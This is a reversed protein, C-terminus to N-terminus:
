SGGTGARARWSLKHLEMVAALVLAIGVLPLWLSLAVPSTELVAQLPGVYLAGVHLLLAGVASLLLLPNSTPSVRFLSRTESRSNGVQVNEFLVMLLLLANRAEAVAFGADLLWRFTLFGAGGIVAAALLTREVMLRDFIPEGPDRPPRDLVDGEEPEFGLAIDQGGETVLNLWLLQAPLLPLPLGAALSLLVLVIESANTSVLMYVVKRINDYAIRGQRIGGVITAFDDDSLVLEATDRAVDTGSAGMAIGINATQLAPADNVGDGTVAVFHGAAKAAEVIRLKQDPAVRAFVRTRQVAERLGAEDMDALERGTLVEDSDSALGLERAIALATEPHDGTLMSVEIGARRASAIAEQTGPRLPDRMGVFGLFTLGDPTPPDDPDFEGDLRGVALALVRYGDKALDTAARRATETADDAAAIDTDTDANVDDADAATDVTASPWACMDLVREPAGKVFVRTQGTERGTSVTGQGERYYAAAFRREPEFPIQAVSRLGDDARPGDREVKRAFSLLAVDTPDGRWHWEGDHETLTAENCLRAARALRELAPQASTGLTEDSDLEMGPNTAVLDGDPDYGQGTVDYSEGSPLRVRRVTLLNETLTGTKDTAILTCSGLGEVAVMRRVIVGVGAMRRTAVGLAVTMSVPLGEPIAAVMLAVAFLFMEFLGFGRFGVGLVVAAVALAVVALGITRTFQAMRHVLPPDGAQIGVVDGALEGVVTQSGTAVVVGRGRGRTVTTGAFALNERDVVPTSPDGTWLVSKTVPTSEGTLTSEDLELGNTALLRLDAAVRGGAELLVVDGPVLERSDLEVESDRLVTTRTRILRQLAQVSREAHWEQFGGIAANVFLVVGIFAADVPEGIALSVAAAALLVYSLPSRLQRLFTRVASPPAPQPLENPGHRARRAEASESSLGRDTADLTALAEEVTQTHWDRASTPDDGPM